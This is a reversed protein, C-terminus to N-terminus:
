EMKWCYEIIYNVKNLSERQNEDNHLHMYRWILKFKGESIKSKIISQFIENSSRHDCMAHRKNVGMLLIVGIFAKIEELNMNELHEMRKPFYDNDINEQNNILQKNFNQIPSLTHM